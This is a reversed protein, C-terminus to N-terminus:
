QAIGRTEDFGEQKVISSFQGAEILVDAPTRHARSAERGSGDPAVVEAHGLRMLPDTADAGTAESSVRDLDGVGTLAAREVLRSDTLLDRGIVGFGDVETPPDFDVPAIALIM